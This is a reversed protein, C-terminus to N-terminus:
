KPRHRRVRNSKGSGRTQSVPLDETKGTSEDVVVKGGANGAQQKALYDRRYSQYEDEKQLKTILEDNSKKNLDQLKQRLQMGSSVQKYYDEQRKAREDPSLKRPDEIIPAQGASAEAAEREIAKLDLYKEMWQHIVQRDIRNYIPGLLGNKAMKFCLMFDDLSENPYQDMISHVLDMKQFENLTLGLNLTKVLIEVQTDILKAVVPREIDYVRIMENISTAQLNEKLTLSAEVKYYLSPNATELCRIM